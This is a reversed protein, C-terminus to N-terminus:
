RFILFFPEVPLNALEQRLPTLRIGMKPNQLVHSCLSLGRNCGDSSFQETIKVRDFIPHYILPSPDEIVGKVRFIVFFARFVAQLM